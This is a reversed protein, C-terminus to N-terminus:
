EPSLMSYIYVQTKLKQLENLKLFTNILTKDLDSLTAFWINKAQEPSVVVSQTTTALENTNGLLYDTSVNYLKSLNILSQYDPFAKDNEWKGVTTQNLNLLKALEVQTLKQKIRLDKFKNM